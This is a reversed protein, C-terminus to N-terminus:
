CLHLRDYTPIWIWFYIFITVYWSWTSNIRPICSYNLMQFDILFLVTNVAYFLFWIVMWTSQSFYKTYNMVNMVKFIDRLTCFYSPVEEVQYLDNIFFRYSIGYKITFSKARLISCIRIDARAVGMLVSSTKSLAILCSLFFLLCM